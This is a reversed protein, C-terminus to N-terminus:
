CQCCVDHLRSVKKALNETMAQNQRDLTEHALESQMAVSVVAVVSNALYTYFQIHTFYLHSFMYFVQRHM